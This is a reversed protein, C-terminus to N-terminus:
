AEPGLKADHDDGHPRQSGASPMPLGDLFDHEGVMYLRVVDVAALYMAGERPSLAPAGHRGALFAGRFAAIIRLALTVRRPFSSGETFANRGDFPDPPLRVTM